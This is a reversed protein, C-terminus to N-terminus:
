IPLITGIWKTLKKLTDQDLELDEQDDGKDSVSVGLISIDKIFTKAQDDPTDRSVGPLGEVSNWEWTFDVTFTYNGIEFVISADDIGSNGDPESINWNGMKDIPEIPKVSVKNLAINKLIELISTNSEFLSYNKLHNM